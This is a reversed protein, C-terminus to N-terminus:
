QRIKELIKPECQVVQSGQPQSSKKANIEQIKKAKTLDLKPVSLLNKINASANVKDPLPSPAPSLDNDSEPVLNNM